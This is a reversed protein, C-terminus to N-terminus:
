TVVAMRESKTMMVSKGRGFDQTEIDWKRVM